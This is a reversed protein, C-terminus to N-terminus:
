MQIMTNANSNVEVQKTPTKIVKMSLLMEDARQKYENIIEAYQQNEEYIQLKQSDDMAPDNKIADLNNQILDNYGDIVDNILRTQQNKNQDTRVLNTNIKLM